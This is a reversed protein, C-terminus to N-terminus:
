VGTTVPVRSPLSGESGIRSFGTGIIEITGDTPRLPSMACIAM